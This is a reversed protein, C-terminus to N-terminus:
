LFICFANKTLRLHHLPHSPYSIPHIWVLNKWPSNHNLITVNAISLDIFALSYLHPSARHLNTWLLAPPRNQRKSLLPWPRAKPLWRMSRLKGQENSTRRAPEHHKKLPYLGRMVAKLHFLLSSHIIANILASPNDLLFSLLQFFPRNFSQDHLPKSWCLGTQLVCGRLLSRKVFFTYSLEEWLWQPKHIFQFAWLYPVAPHRWGSSLSHRNEGARTRCRRQEESRQWDSFSLDWIHPCDTARPAMNHAETDEVPFTPNSM